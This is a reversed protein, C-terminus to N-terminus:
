TGLVNGLGFCFQYVIPRSASFLELCFLKTAQTHKRTFYAKFFIKNTCQSKDHAQHVLVIKLTFKRLVTFDSLPFSSIKSKKLNVIM